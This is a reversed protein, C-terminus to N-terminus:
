FFERFLDHSTYICNRCDNPSELLWWYAVHTSPNITLTAADASTPNVTDINFSESTFSDDLMDIYGGHSGILILAEKSVKNLCSEVFNQIPKLELPVKEVSTELTVEDVPQRLYIFVGAVILIVVGIILFITIQAKKNKKNRFLM